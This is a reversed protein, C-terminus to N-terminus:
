RNSRGATTAAFRVKVDIYSRLRPEPNKLRVLVPVRGTTRDAAIGVNAVQGRLVEARGERTVEADQGVTIQDAQEPAVDCRVDIVSLDLIEGWVTTGPRSVTGPVVDLSAIVGDIPATVTYHELEAEAGRLAEKAGVVRATLEAVEQDYPRKRLRKLRAGAAKHDAEARDADAKADHYRQEPIAGKAWAPELRDLLVKAARSAVRYTEVAAEAEEIDHERPEAKLRALSAEMETVAAKRARVDAAPEDQDIKVLPQDKKVTDGVTVLVEEVPHLVAPAIKASKGPAPQTKGSVVLPVSGETRPEAGHLFLTLGGLAAVVGCVGALPVLLRLRM